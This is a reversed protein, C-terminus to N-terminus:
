RYISWQRFKGLQICSVTPIERCLQFKGVQNNFVTPNKQCTHRLIYSFDSMYTSFMKRWGLRKTRRWGSGASYPSLKKQLTPPCKTRYGHDAIDSQVQYRIEQYRVSCCLGVNYGINSDLKIRYGIDSMWCAGHSQIITSALWLLPHLNSNM